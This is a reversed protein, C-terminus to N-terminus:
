RIRRNDAWVMLYSLSVATGVVVTFVVLGKWATSDTKIEKYAATVILVITAIAILSGAGLLLYYVASALLGVWDFRHKMIGM